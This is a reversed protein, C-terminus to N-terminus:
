AEKLIVNVVKAVAANLNREAQAKLKKIAARNKELQDDRQRNAQEVALAYLQKGEEEAYTQSNAILKESDQQALDCIIQAKQQAGVRIQEAESEINKLEEWVKEMTGCAVL